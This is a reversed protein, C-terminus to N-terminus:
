EEIVFDREKTPRGEEDLDISKRYVQEEDEYPRGLQDQVIVMYVLERWLNRRRFSKWADTIQFAAEDRIREETKVCNKPAGAKCAKHCQFDCNVCQAGQKIGVIMKSCLVCTVAGQFTVFEFRHRLNTTEALASNESVVESSSNANSSSSSQEDSSSTASSSSGGAGVASSAENEETEPPTWEPDVVLELVEMMKLKASAMTKDMEIPKADSIDTEARYLLYKEPFEISFKTCMQEVFQKSTTEKPLDTLDVTKTKKAATDTAPLNLKILLKKNEFQPEDTAWNFEGGEYFTKLDWGVTYTIKNGKTGSEVLTPLSRDDIKVDRIKEIKDNNNNMEIVLVYTHNRKLLVSVDHKEEAGSYQKEEASPSYSLPPLPHSNDPVKQKKSKQKGCNKKETKGNRVPYTGKLPVPDTHKLTKPNYYYFSINYDVTLKMVSTIMQTFHYPMGSSDNKEMDEPTLIRSKAEFGEEKEPYVKLQIEKKQKQYGKVGKVKYVITMTLFDRDGKSTARNFGKGSSFISSM